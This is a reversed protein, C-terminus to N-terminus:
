PITVTTPPTPEDDVVRFTTTNNDPVPDNVRVGTVHAVTDGGLGGLPYQGSIVVTATAGAPLDSMTCAVTTEGATGPSMTCMGRDTAVAYGAGLYPFLYGLRVIGADDPGDNTISLEIAWERGAPPAESMRAAVGIDAVPYPTLRAVFLSPLSPIVPRGDLTPSSSTFVITRGDAAFRAGGTTFGGGTAGSPDLSVLEVAWSEIDRLYLEGSIAPFGRVINAGGSAFALKSGDPSFAPGSSPRNAPVGDVDHSVLRLEHEGITYLFVDDFGNTDGAVLNSARSTFALHTGDPSFVPSTSTADGPTGGSGSVLETTGSPLLHLYIQERVPTTATRWRVAVRTGTRDVAAGLANGAPLPTGGSGISALSTTGSALDRVYAQTGTTPASVIGGAASLFPVKTGDASVAAAVGMSTATGAADGGLDVSVLDIEGTSLDLAYTDAVGNTDTPGLDSATSTFVVVQGDGSVLPATSAGNASATGTSSTTLLRTTDTELDRLYLDSVGNDDIPGLNSDTTAFVVSRGGQALRSVGVSGNGGDTGDPTGNLRETTGATLDRLYLSTAIGDVTSDPFGMDTAATAFVVKSGDPTIEGGGTLRNPGATGAANVSVLESRWGETPPPQCGTAFAGACVSGALALRGLRRRRM